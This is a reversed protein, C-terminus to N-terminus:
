IIDEEYNDEMDGFIVCLHPNDRQADRMVKKVRDIYLSLRSEEHPPTFVGLCIDQTISTLEDYLADLNGGYYDEFELEFKLYEHIWEVSHAPKLDLLVKKM